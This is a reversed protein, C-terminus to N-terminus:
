EGRLPRRITVLTWKDPCAPWPETMLVCREHVVLLEIQPLLPTPITWLKEHGFRLTECDTQIQGFCCGAIFADDEYPGGNSKGVIPRYRKDYINEDDDM